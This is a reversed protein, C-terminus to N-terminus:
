FKRALSRYALLTRDADHPLKIFAHYHGKPNIVVVNGTHDIVYGGNDAPVKMFAVNLQTALAAVADRSGTVGMFRPSFAGVYKGLTEASDREPDVSILYVKLQDLLDHDGADALKKEMQALVALTVPCIDPCSTYGFFLLSWHGLLSSNDFVDGHQDVLAFPAIERPTQLIFTGQERLAADDLLPERLVTYVLAGLVIAVFAICLLVTTRVSGRV